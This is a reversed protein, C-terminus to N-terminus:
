LGISGSCSTARCKQIVVYRRPSRGSRPKGIHFSIARESFHSLQYPFLDAIIHSDIFSAASLIQAIPLLLGSFLFHAIQPARTLRTSLELEAKPAGFFLHSSASIIVLPFQVHCCLMNKSVGFVLPGEPVISTVREHGETQRVDRAGSRRNRKRCKESPESVHDVLVQLQM